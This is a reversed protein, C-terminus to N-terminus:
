GRNRWWGATAAPWRASPTARASSQRPCNCRSWHWQGTGASRDGATASGRPRVPRSPRPFAGPGPTRPISRQDAIAQDQRRCTAAAAPTSCSSWRCPALSGPGVATSCPACHPKEREGDSPAPTLGVVDFMWCGVDLMWPGPDAGNNSTPREINSTPHQSGETKPRRIEPSCFM